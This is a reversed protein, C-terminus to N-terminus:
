MNGELLCLQGSTASAQVSSTVETVNGSASIVDDVGFLFHPLSCVIGSVGFLVTFTALTRPIHVRLALYSFIVVSSLYGIDNSAIILGTQSSSFGFQRELTTVQRM